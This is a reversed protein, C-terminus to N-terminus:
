GVMLPAFVPPPNRGLLDPAQYNNKWHFQHEVRNEVDPIKLAIQANQVILHTMSPLHDQHDEGIELIDINHHNDSEQVQHSSGNLTHTNDSTCLTNLHHGFHYTQVTQDKSEHNCFAAAVNWLSQFMFLGVLVTIWTFSRM